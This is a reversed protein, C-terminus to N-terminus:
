AAIRKACLGLDKSIRKQLPFLLDEPGIAVELAQTTNKRRVYLVVHKEQPKAHAMFIEGADRLPLDVLTVFQGNNRRFGRRLERRELDVQIEERYGTLSSWIAYCGLISFFASVILKFSFVDSSVSAGPVVLLGMAVLLLVAGLVRMGFLTVYSLLDEQDQSTIIYGWSAHTLEPGEDQVLESKAAQLTEILVSM